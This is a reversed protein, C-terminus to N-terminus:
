YVELEWEEFCNGMDFFNRGFELDDYAVFNQTNIHGKTADKYLGFVQNVSEKKCRQQSSVSM